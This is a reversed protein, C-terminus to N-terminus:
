SSSEVHQIPSQLTDYLCAYYFDETQTVERRKVKGERIFLKKIRMKAVREWWMVMTSYNKTQKFWEICCQRLQEQFKKESLLATNM